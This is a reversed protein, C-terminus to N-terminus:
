SQEEKLCEATRLMKGEIEQRKFQKKGGYTVKGLAKEAARIAEVMVRFREPYIAFSDLGIDDIRIHKEIVRAGLPVSAVAAVMGGTHDSFGVKTKFVRGLADMTKLNVKEILCPYESICHLLTINKHYKRVAAVAKKIENFEASGTSIIIPKKTKAATEILELYTIEFSSIKYTSIGIEEAVKVIDPHYVSAFFKLGLHEAFNKLRSIWEIPLAAADYLDWLRFGKWLGEKIIFKNDNSKLTMQDATFIQVKVANAGAWKAAEIIERATKEDQHHSAGMEAVITVEKSM